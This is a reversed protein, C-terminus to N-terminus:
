RSARPRSPGPVRVIVTSTGRLARDAVELDTLYAFFRPAASAAAIELSLARARARATLLRARHRASAELAAARADERAGLLALAAADRHREAVLRAALIRNRLADYAKLSADSPRVSTVWVDLLGVGDRALAPSLGPALRAGLDRDAVLTETPRKRLLGAVSNRVLTALADRAHVSDGLAVYRVPDTVRWMWVLGLRGAIKGGTTWPVTATGRRVRADLVRVRQVGPVTWVEGPGRVVAVPKGESLVVATQWPGLPTCAAYLLLAAFLLIVGLLLSQVLSRNM